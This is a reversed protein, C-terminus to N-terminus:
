RLSPARFNPEEGEEASFDWQSHGGRGKGRGDRGRGRGPGDGRGRGRGRSQSSSPSSQQPKTAKDLGSKEGPTAARSFKDRLEDRDFVKGGKLQLKHAPSVANEHFRQGWCPCLSPRNVDNCYSLLFPWCPGDVKVGLYSAIKTLDWTRGSIVLEKKGNLYKYSKVRSGPPPAPAADWSLGSGDVKQKKQRGGPTPTSKSLESLLPLTMSALDEQGSSSGFYKSLESLSDALKDQTTEAAYLESLCESDFDLVYTDFSSEFAPNYLIARLRMKIALLAAKFGQVSRELWARISDMNPCRFARELHSNYWEGFTVFTFGATSTNALGSACALIHLFECLKTILAPQCFYDRPDHEVPSARGDQCQLRGMVGHPAKIFDTTDLELGLWGNLVSRNGGDIMSAVTYHEMRDPVVLRKDVRLHWNFYATRYQRMENLKSLTPHRRVLTIEGNDSTAFLVRVAITCRGNFGLTLADRQGQPATLDLGELGQSITRFVSSEPGTLVAELRNQDPPMTGADAGSSPPAGQGSARLKHLEELLAATITEANAGPAGEAESLINRRDSLRSELGEPGDLVEILDLDRKDSDLLGARLRRICSHASHNDRSQLLIYQSLNHRRFTRRVRTLGRARSPLM